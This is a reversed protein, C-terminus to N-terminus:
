DQLWIHSNNSHHPHIDRASPLPHALVNRRKETTDPSLESDVSGRGTGGAAASTTELDPSSMTCCYCVIGIQRPVISKCGNGKLVIIMANIENCTKYSSRFIVYDCQNCDGFYHGFHYNQVYSAVEYPFPAPPGYNFAEGRPCCELMFEYNPFFPMNPHLRNSSVNGAVNHSYTSM